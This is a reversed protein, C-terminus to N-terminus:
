SVCRDVAFAASLPVIRASNSACRVTFMVQGTHCRVARHRMLVFGGVTSRDRSGLSQTVHRRVPCGVTCTRHERENASKNSPDSEEKRM